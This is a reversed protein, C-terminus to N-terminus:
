QKYLSVFVAWYTEVFWNRLIKEPNIGKNIEQQIIQEIQKVSKLLGEKDQKM